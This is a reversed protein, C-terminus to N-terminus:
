RAKAKPPRGTVKGDVTRVAGRALRLGAAFETLAFRENLRMAHSRAIGVAKAAGTINGNAAVLAAKWAELRMEDAAAQAKDAAVRRIM